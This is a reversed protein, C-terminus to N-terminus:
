DEWLYLMKGDTDKKAFIGSESKKSARSLCSSMIASPNGRTVLSFGDATAKEVISSSGLWQGENTKLVYLGVELFSADKEPKDIEVVFIEVEPVKALEPKKAKKPTGVNRKPKAIKYGKPPKTARVKAGCPTASNLIVGNIRTVM